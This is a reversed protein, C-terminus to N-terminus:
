VNMLNGAISLNKSCIQRKFVTHKRSLAVTFRVRANHPPKVQRSTRGFKVDSDATTFPAGTTNFLNDSFLFPVSTMAKGLIPPQPGQTNATRFPFRERGIAFRM